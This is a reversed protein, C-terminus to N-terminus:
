TYPTLGSRWPEVVAGCTEVHRSDYSELYREAVKDALCHALMAM